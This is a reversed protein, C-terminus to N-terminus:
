RRSKGSNRGRFFVPATTPFILRTHTSIFRCSSGLRIYFFNFTSNHLPCGAFFFGSKKTLAVSSIRFLLKVPYVKNTRSLNSDPAVVGVGSRSYGSVLFCNYQSVEAPTLKAVRAKAISARLEQRKPLPMTAYARRFDAYPVTGHHYQGPFRQECSSVTAIYEDNAHKRPTFPGLLPLFAHQPCLPSASSILVAHQNMLCTPVSVASLCPFVLALIVFVHPLAELHRGTPSLLNPLNSFNFPDSLPQIIFDQLPQFNRRLSIALSNPLHLKAPLIKGRHV